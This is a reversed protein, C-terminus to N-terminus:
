RNPGGTLPIIIPKHVSVCFPKSNKFNFKFYRAHPTPATLSTTVESVSNNQIKGAVSSLLQRNLAAVPLLGLVLFRALSTGTGMKHFTTAKILMVPLHFANNDM